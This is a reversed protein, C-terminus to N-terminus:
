CCGLVYLQVLALEATENRLKVHWERSPWFSCSTILYADGEVSSKSDCTQVKSVTSLVCYAYNAKGTSPHFGAFGLFGQSSEIRSYMGVNHDGMSEFRHSRIECGDVPPGLTFCDFGAM